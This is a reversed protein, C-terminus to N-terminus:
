RALLEQIHGNYTFFIASFMSAPTSANAYVRPSTASRYSITDSGVKEEDRYFAVSHEFDTVPLIVQNM